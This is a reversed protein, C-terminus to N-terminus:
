RATLRLVYITRNSNLTLLHRGDAALVLQEIRGPFRWERLKTRRVADWVILEGNLCAAALRKGDYALTWVPSGTPGDDFSAIQRIAGRSLDYLKAVGSLYRWPRGTPRWQPSRDTLTTLRAANRPHPRPEEM